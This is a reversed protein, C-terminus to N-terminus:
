DENLAKGGLDADYKLFKNFRELDNADKAVIAGVISSVSPLAVSDRCLKSMSFAADRDSRSPSAGM